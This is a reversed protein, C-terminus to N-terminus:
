FSQTFTTKIEKNINNQKKRSAHTHTHAHTCAHVCTHPPTNETEEKKTNKIKSYKKLNEGKDWM